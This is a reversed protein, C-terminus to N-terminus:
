NNWIQKFHSVASLLQEKIWNLYFQLDTQNILDTSYCAFKAIIRASMNNIFGDAANLLNLFNGCVPENKKLAYEHFIEVRSRDEQSILHKFFFNTKGYQQYCEVLSKTLACFLFSVVWPWCIMLWFLYMNYQRNRLSINWYVSSPRQLSNVITM